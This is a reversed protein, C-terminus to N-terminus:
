SKSRKDLAHYGNVEAVVQLVAPTYEDSARGVRISLKKIRLIPKKSELQALFPLLEAYTSTFGLQIIVKGILDNTQPSSLSRMSTIHLTNKSAISRVDRQILSQISNVEGAYLYQEAAERNLKELREKILAERKPLSQLSKLLASRVAYNDKYEQISDWKPLVL